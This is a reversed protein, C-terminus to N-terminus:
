GRPSTQRSLQSQNGHPFPTPQVQYKDKFIFFLLSSEGERPGGTYADPTLEAQFVM